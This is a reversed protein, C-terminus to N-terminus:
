TETAQESLFFRRFPKKPWQVKSHTVAKNFLAAQTKPYSCLKYCKDSIGKKRKLEWIACKLNYSNSM